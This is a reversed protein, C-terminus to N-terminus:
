QRTAALALRLGAKRGNNSPGQFGDSLNEGIQIQEVGTLIKM